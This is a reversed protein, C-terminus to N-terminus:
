EWENRLEKQIELPDKELQITGRWSKLNNKKKKSDLKKSLAVIAKLDSGGKLIHVM